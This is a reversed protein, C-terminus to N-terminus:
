LIKNLFLTAVSVVRSRFCQSFFFFCRFKRARYHAALLIIKSGNRKIEILHGFLTQQSTRQLPSIVKRPGPVFERISVIVGVVKGSVTSLRLYDFHRVSKADM